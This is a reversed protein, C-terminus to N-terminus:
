QIDKDTLTEVRVITYKIIELNKDKRSRRRKIQSNLLNEDHIYATSRIIQGDHNVDSSIVWLNSM